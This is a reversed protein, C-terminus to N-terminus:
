EAQALRQGRGRRPEVGLPSIRGQPLHDQDPVTLSPEQDLHLGDTGPILEPIRDAALRQLLQLQGVLRAIQEAAPEEDLRQGVTDRTMNM